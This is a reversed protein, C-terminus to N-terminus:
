RPWLWQFIGATLLAYIAGDLTAKLTLSWARRYWISMQWLALSYGAFSVLAVSHFVLHPHAERGLATGAEIAAVITVVLIYLIWGIFARKMDMAGKPFVTMLVMPGREVKAKYADTAMEERTKPRPMFYDGPPIDIPRLADLIADEKEYNPFDGKHWPTAMHIVSSALFVAVTALAIPVLLETIHVM